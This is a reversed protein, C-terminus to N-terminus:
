AEKNRTENNKKEVKKVKENIWGKLKSRNYLSIKDENERTILTSPWRAKRGNIAIHGHVIFQRAQKPTNTLGKKYVLTQLRRDLIKEITLALVDDLNADKNILGLKYLKELLIKEQEKDKKAALNRAQRRFNRIISEARWIERKRRLGYEKLLKKEREIREKDWPKLPREYKKRQRKM